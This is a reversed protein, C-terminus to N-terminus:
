LAFLKELRLKTIKYQEEMAMKIEDAPQNQLRTLLIELMESASKGTACVIFIYGFKEEYRRNAEALKQIVAESAENVSQQETGAFRDNMFKNRLADVDGIKPHHSFAEKWDAEKCALWNERAIRLIEQLNTTPFVGLMKDVWCGAGCCELLMSRKVATDLQNFAEVTM